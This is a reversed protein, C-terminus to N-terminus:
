KKSSVVETGFRNVCKKELFTGYLNVCLNPTDLFAATKQVPWTTYMATPKLNFIKTVITCSVM